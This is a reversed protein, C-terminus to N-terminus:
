SPALGFLKRVDRRTLVKYQWLALFFFFAAAVSFWWRPIHSLKVGFMQFHAPSNGALGVVFVFPLLILGIWLFVLGCTRWGPRLKLLGIGIFIGLVGFNISIGGRTLAVLMEIAASIGSMIFLVAVITLSTPIVARDQQLYGSEESFPLRIGALLQNYEQESIRGEARMRNLQEQSSIEPNNEM